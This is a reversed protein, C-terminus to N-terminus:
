GHRGPPSPAPPWVEIEIRQVAALRGEILEAVAAEAIVANRVRAFAEDGCTLTLEGRRPDFHVEISDGMAGRM